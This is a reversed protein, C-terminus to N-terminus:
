LMYNDFFFLKLYINTFWLILFFEKVSALFTFFINCLSLILRTIIEFVLFISLFIWLLALFILYSIKDFKQILCLILYKNVACLKSSWTSVKKIRRELPLPRFPRDDIFTSELNFLLTFSNLGNHVISIILFISYFLRNFYIM